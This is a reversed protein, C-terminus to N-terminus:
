DEESNITVRRATLGHKLANQSSRAKGESTIPGRSKRGNERAAGARSKPAERGSTAQPEHSTTGSAGPENPENECQEGPAIDTELANPETKGKLYDPLGQPLIVNVTDTEM